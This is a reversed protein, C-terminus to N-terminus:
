TKYILNAITDLKPPMKTIQDKIPRWPRGKESWWSAPEETNDSFSSNVDSLPSKYNIPPFPPASMMSALHGKNIPPASQSLLIVYFRYDHHERPNRRDNTRALRPTNRGQSKCLNPPWLINMNWILDSNPACCANNM